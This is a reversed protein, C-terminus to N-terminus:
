RSEFWGMSFAEKYSEELFGPCRNELEKLAHSESFQNDRVKSAIEYSIELLTCAKDYLVVLDDWKLEPFLQQLKDKAELHNSHSKKIIKIAEYLFKQHVNNNMKTGINIVM